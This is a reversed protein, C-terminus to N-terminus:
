KESLAQTTISRLYVGGMAHVAGIVLSIIAFQESTVLPQMLHISGHVSAVLAMIVNFNITKSKTTLVDM